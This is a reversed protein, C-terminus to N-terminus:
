LSCGLGRFYCCAQIVAEQMFEFHKPERKGKLEGMLINGRFGLILDFRGGFEREFDFLYLETTPVFEGDYNITVTPVPQEIYPLIDNRLADIYGELRLPYFPLPKGKAWQHLANHLLNGASLSEQIIRDAEKDGVQERWRKLGANGKHNFRHQM